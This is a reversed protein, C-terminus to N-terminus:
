NKFTQCLRLHAQSAPWSVNPSTSSPWERWAHFWHCWTWKKEKLFILTDPFNLTSSGTLFLRSSTGESTLPSWNRSNVKQAFPLSTPSTTEPLLFSTLILRIADPLTEFSNFSIDLTEIDSFKQFFWGPLTTIENGNIQPPQKLQTLTQISDPLIKLKNWSLSLKEVNVFKDTKFSHIM